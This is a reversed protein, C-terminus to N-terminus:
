TGVRRGHHRVWLKGWAHMGDADMDCVGFREGEPHFVVRGGPDGEDSTPMYISGKDAADAQGPQVAVAAGALLFAGAALALARKVVVM